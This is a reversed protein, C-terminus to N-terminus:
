MDLSELCRKNDAIARLLCTIIRVESAQETPYVGILKEDRWEFIAISVLPDGNDDQNSKVFETVIFPDM